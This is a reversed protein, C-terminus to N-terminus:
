CAVLKEFATCFTDTERVFGGLDERRDELIQVFPIVVGTEEVVFASICPFQFIGGGAITPPAFTSDIM